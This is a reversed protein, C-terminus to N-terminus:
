AGLGLVSHIQPEVQSRIWEHGRDNPHLGDAFLHTARWDDPVQDFLSVFGIGEKECTAAFAESFTRLRDNSFYSVSGPRIASEKPLTKSEDVPWLGVGIIHDSYEKALHVFAHVSAAFDDPTSVHNDAADVAKSDNVGASFLIVVDDPNCGRIRPMAEALFRDLIQPMTNGPIGLEYVECLEGRGGLGYMTTHLGTKIRDAWGGHEGGVGHVSSAGFILIKKM